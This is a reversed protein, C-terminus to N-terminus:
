FHLCYNFHLRRTFDLLIRPILISFYLIHFCWFVFHNECSNFCKVGNFFFLFQSVLLLSFDHFLVGFHTCFTSADLQRIDYYEALLSIWVRFRVTYNMIVHITHSFEICFVHPIRHAWLRKLQEGSMAFCGRCFFQKNIKKSKRM